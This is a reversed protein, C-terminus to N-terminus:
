LGNFVQSNYETYEWILVIQKWIEMILTRKLIDWATTSDGELTPPPTFLSTLKSLIFHNKKMVTIKAFDPLHMSSYPSKQDKAM